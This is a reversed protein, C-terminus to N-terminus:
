IVRESRLAEVMMSLQVELILGRGRTKETRNMGQYFTNNLCTERHYAMVLTLDARCFWSKVGVWKKGGGKEEHIRPGFNGISM